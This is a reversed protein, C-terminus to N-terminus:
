SCSALFIFNLLSDQDRKTEITAELLAWFLPIWNCHLEM